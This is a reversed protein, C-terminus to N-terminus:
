TVHSMNFNNHLSPCTCKPRLTLFLEVKGCYHSSSPTFTRRASSHPINLLVVVLGIKSCCAHLASHM